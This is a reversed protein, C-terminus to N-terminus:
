LKQFIQHPSKIYSRWMHEGWTHWTITDSRGRRWVSRREHVLVSLSLTASIRTARDRTSNHTTTVTFTVTLGALRAKQVCEKLCREVPQGLRCQSRNWWILSVAWTWALKPAIIVKKVFLVSDNYQVNPSPIARLGASQLLYHTHSIVASM